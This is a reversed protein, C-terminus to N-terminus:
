LKEGNQLLKGTGVTGAKSAQQEKKYQVRDQVEYQSSILSIVPVTPVSKTMM